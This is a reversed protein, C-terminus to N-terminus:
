RAVPRAPRQEARRVGTRGNWGHFVWRGDVRAGSGHLAARACALLVAAMVVPGVPVGLHLALDRAVLPLIYGALLVAKEWPLFGRRLGETWLWALPIATVILDYDLLFPSMLTMAAVCVAGQGRANTGRVRAIIVLLGVAGGAALGQLGYALGIGGGLVRVASFLSVMKGPEVLGQELIARGTASGALFGTWVSPGFVFWSAGCAAIATAAGAVAVRWRGSALVLVPIALAIQPKIVLLGLLAGALWPRRDILWLGSGLLACTLFGNQGHGTNMLVAPFAFATLAGGSAVRPSLGLWRRLALWYAAGTVLLWGILAVFYPVLGLPLCLLLFPPPYLFSPGPEVPMAARQIAYLQALDYAAGSRGALALKSATWFALFDTGLPKGMLDIGHRATLVTGLAAVLSVVILIWRYARARGATMWVMHRLPDITM